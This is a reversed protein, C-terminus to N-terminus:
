RKPHNTGALTASIAALHTKPTRIYQLFAASHWRGFTQITSDEIWKAAATMAAGIRFSHGAYQYQPLGISNLLERIRTVFRQKTIVADSADLFFPGSQSGRLDIYQILATVPCLSSGTLGVVVDSGSGYQNCKSVKLHLQIM